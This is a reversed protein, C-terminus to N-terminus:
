RRQKRLRKGSEVRAAKQAETLSKAPMRFSIQRAPLTYWRSLGDASQRTLTAGVRELKRQMVPDDSFVDWHDKRTAANCYISTEQEELTLAVM